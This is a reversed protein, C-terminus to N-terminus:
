GQQKLQELQDELEQRRGEYEAGQVVGRQHMMELTDIARRIDAEESLDGTGAETDTQENTFLSEAKELHEDKKEDM